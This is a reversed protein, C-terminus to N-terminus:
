FGNIVQSTSTFFSKM